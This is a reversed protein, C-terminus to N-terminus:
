LHQLQAEKLKRDKNIYYISSTQQSDTNLRNIKLFISNVVIKNVLVYRIHQHLMYHTAVITALKFRYEGTFCKVERVNINNLTQLIM